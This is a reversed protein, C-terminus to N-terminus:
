NALQVYDKVVTMKAFEKDTSFEFNVKQGAPWDGANIYQTDVRTGAADDLYVKASFTKLEAGTTNEVVAAYQKWDSVFEQPKEEFQITQLMADIKTDFAEQNKFENGAAILEKFNKQDGEDLPIKKIDNIEVLLKTRQAYLENFKELFTENTLGDLEKIADTLENVYSIALEKLKSDKFKKNDFDESKIADREKKTAAILAEKDDLQNYEESKQFAWRDHLATAMAEVFDEDYTKNEDKKESGCGALVLVLVAVVGLFKKM